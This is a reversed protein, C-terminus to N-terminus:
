KAKKVGGGKRYKESTTPPMSRDAPKGGEEVRGGDAKKAVGGSRFGKVRGTSPDYSGSGTPRMPGVSSEEKPRVIPMPASKVSDPGTQMRDTISGGDAKGRVFGGSRFHGARDPRKNSTEGTVSTHFTNTTVKKPNRTKRPPEGGKYLESPEGVFDDRLDRPSNGLPGKAM